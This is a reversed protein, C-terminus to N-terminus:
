AKLRGVAKRLDGFFTREFSARQKFRRSIDDITEDLLNGNDRLWDPWAGDDVPIKKGIRVFIRSAERWAQGNELMRGALDRIETSGFMDAVQQLFAGYMMRFAGGGTGQEEFIVPVFLLGERLKFGKFKRPWSLIASAFTNIGEVGLLFLLNRLLPLMLMRNITRKMGTVAPRRWDIGGRAGDEITYVLNNPSLAAHTSLALRLDRVHLTGLDLLYPDSVAYADGERGVLLIFHAPAHIQMFGPLYKMYFMDVSVAAPRGTDLLDNVKRVAEDTTSFERYFLKLGCSRAVNKVIDGIPQRLAIAPFSSLTKIFPLYAFFVGSGVGFLLQESVEIGKCALMNRLTGTECHAAVQHRYGPVTKM